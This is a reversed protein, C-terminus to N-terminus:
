VLFSRLASSCAPRKFPCDDDEAVAPVYGAICSLCSCIKQPAAQVSHMSNENLACCLLM